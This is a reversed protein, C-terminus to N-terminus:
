ARWRAWSSKWVELYRLVKTLETGENFIRDDERLKRVIQEPLHRKRKM